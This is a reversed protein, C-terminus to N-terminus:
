RLSIQSLVWTEMSGLFDGLQVVQGSQLEKPTLVQYMGVWLIGSV